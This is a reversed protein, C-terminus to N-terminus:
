VDNLTGTSSEMVLVLILVLASLTAYAAVWVLSWTLVLSSAFVRRPLDAPLVALPLGDVHRNFYCGIMHSPKFEFNAGVVVGLPINFTRHNLINM